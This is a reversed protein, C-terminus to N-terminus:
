GEHTPAANRRPSAFPSSTMGIRGIAAYRERLEHEHETGVFRQNRRHATALVPLLIDAAVITNLALHALLSIGTELVAGFGFMDQSFYFPLLLVFGLGNLILADRRIRPLIRRAEDPTHPQLFSGARAFTVCSAGLFSFAALVIFISPNTQNVFIVVLLLFLSYFPAVAIATWCPAASEPLLNKLVMSARIVAPFLAIVKPLLIVFWAIGLLTGLTSTLTDRVTESPIHSFNMMGTIPLLMILFPFLFSAAWAGLLWRRSSLPEHWKWAAVGLLAVAAIQALMMLVNLNSLTTVNGPGLADLAEKVAREVTQAKPTVAPDIQRSEVGQEWAAAAQEAAGQKVQDGISEFTLVDVLCSLTLFLSAVFLLSRRWTLYSPVIPDELRIGHRELAHVEWQAADGRDVDPHAIRRAALRGEELLRQGQAKWDVDM